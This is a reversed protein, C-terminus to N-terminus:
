RGDGEQIWQVSMLCAFGGSNKYEFESIRLRLSGTPTLTHRRETKNDQMNVSAVLIDAIKNKVDYGIGWWRAPDPYLNTEKWSGGTQTTSEYEDTQLVSM